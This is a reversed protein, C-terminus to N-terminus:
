PRRGFGAASDELRLLRVHKKGYKIWSVSRRRAWHFTTMAFDAASVSAVITAPSTEASIGVQEEAYPLAKLGVDMSCM